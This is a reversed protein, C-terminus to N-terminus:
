SISCKCCCDREKEEIFQQSPINNLLSRNEDDGEDSEEDNINIDWMNPITAPQYKGTHSEKVLEPLFPGQFFPELILPERYEELDDSNITLSFKESLEALVRQLNQTAEYEYSDSTINCSKFLASDSIM